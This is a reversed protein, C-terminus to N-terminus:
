LELRTCLEVIQRTYEEPTLNKEVIKAKEIEYLKWREKMDMYDDKILTYFLLIM